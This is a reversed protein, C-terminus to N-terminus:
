KINRFILSISLVRNQLTHDNLNAIDRLGHSYNLSLIVRSFDIGLAMNAGYDFQKLENKETGWDISAVIKGDGDTESVRITGALCFSVYPGAKIFYNEKYRTKHTHKFYLPVDIYNLRMKASYDSGFFSGSEKSGKINYIVGTELSFSKILPKEVLIGLNLGLLSNEIDSAIEGDHKEFNNSGNAGIQLLLNQGNSLSFICTLLGILFTKKM